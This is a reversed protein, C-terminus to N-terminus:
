VPLARKLDAVAGDGLRGNLDKLTLHKLTTIGKLHDLGVNSIQTRSLDLDRLYSLRTLHKLGADTVNTGPATSLVWILAALAFILGVFIPYLLFPAYKPNLSRM